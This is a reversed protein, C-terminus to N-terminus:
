RKVYVKVRKGDKIKMYYLGGRKGQYLKRKNQTFSRKTNPRPNSKPKPKYVTKSKPKYAPKPKSKSKMSVRRTSSSQTPNYQIGIGQFEVHTSYCRKLTINIFEIINESNESSNVLCNLNNYGLKIALIYHKNDNIKQSFAEENEDAINQKIENKMIILNYEYTKDISTMEENQDVVYYVGYEAKTEKENVHYVQLTKIKNLNPIGYKEVFSGLTMVQNKEMNCPETYSFHKECANEETMIACIVCSM